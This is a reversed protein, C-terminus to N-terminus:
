ASRSTCNGRPMNAIAAAVAIKGLMELCAADFSKSATLVMKECAIFRTNNMVIGEM